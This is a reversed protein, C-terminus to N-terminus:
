TEAAIYDLFLEMQGGCVDGTGEPSDDALSVTTRRSERTSLLVERAESVVVAEACGGGVSGLTTGDAWILMRACTERPTSGRTGIVTALVLPRGASQETAVREFLARDDTTNM